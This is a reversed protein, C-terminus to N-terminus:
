PAEGKGFAGLAQQIAWFAPQSLERKGKKGGKGRYTYYIAEGDQILDGAKLNLM